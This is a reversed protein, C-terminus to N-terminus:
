SKSNQWEELAGIVFSAAPHNLLQEFGSVGGAKLAGIVRNMLAPNSEIQEIAQSCGPKTFTTDLSSLLYLTLLLTFQM